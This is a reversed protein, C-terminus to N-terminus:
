EPDLAVRVAVPRGPELDVTFHKEKFGAARVFFDGDALPIRNFRRKGPSVTRCASFSNISYKRRRYVQFDEVPDGGPGVAEVDLVGTPELLLDGIDLNRGAAVRMPQSELKEYGEADVEICITGDPIGILTFRGSGMGRAGSIFTIPIRSEFLTVTWALDERDILRGTRADRLTGSVSGGPVVLDLPYPDAASAPIEIDAFAIMWSGDLSEARVKQRGRPVEACAFRGNEDTLSKRPSSTNVPPHMVVRAGTVPSGDSFTLIGDVAVPGGLPVLDSRRITIEAVDNAQIRFDHVTRGYPDLEANVRWAGSPMHLTQEELSELVQPWPEGDADTLWLSLVSREYEEFGELVLHLSGTFQVALRVGTTVEGAKVGIGFLPESLCERGLAVMMYAGEPLCRAIFTGDEENVRCDYDDRALINRIKVSVGAPDVPPAGTFGDIVIGQIAGGYRSLHFDKVTIGPEEIEIRGPDARSVQSPLHIWALYSGPVLKRLEFRGDEDCRSIIDIKVPSAADLPEVLKVRVGGGPLPVEGFDYVIGRLVAHRPSPGFDVKVDSDVIVAKRYEKTFPIREQDEMRDQIALVKVEGPAVPQTRYSGGPGTLTDITLPVAEGSLSIHIGEAPEGRDDRVTGYVCFGPELRIEAEENQDPRVTVFGEAYDPHVAAITFDREGSNLGNIEFRGEEDSAAHHYKEPEARISSLRSPTAVLAGSVPEGTAAVVVRGSVSWGVGLEIRLDALGEPPVAVDMRCSIHRSSFLLLLMPGSRDIRFSFAGDKSHVAKSIVDIRENKKESQILNIFFAEVPAGTEKAVVKGAFLIGAPALAERGIEGAKEEVRSSADGSLIDVAEVADQLAQVPSEEPSKSEEQAPWLVVLVTIIAALALLVAIPIVLSSPKTM